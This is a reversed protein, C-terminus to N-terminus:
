ENLNHNTTSLCIRVLSITFCRLLLNHVMDQQHFKRYYEWSFFPVFFVPCLKQIVMIKFLHTKVSGSRTCIFVVV